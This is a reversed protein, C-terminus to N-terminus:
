EEDKMKHQLSVILLEKVIQINHECRKKIYENIPKKLACQFGHLSYCDTTELLKNGSGNLIHEFVPFKKSMKYTNEDIIKIDRVSTDDVTTHIFTNYINILYAELKQDRDNKLNAFYQQYQVMVSPASKENVTPVRRSNHNGM